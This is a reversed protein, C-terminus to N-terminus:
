LKELKTLRGHTVWEVVFLNGKRDFAADHPCVFKGAKFHERSKTRLRRIEDKNDGRWDDGLRCINKYNKDVLVVGANLDPIAM